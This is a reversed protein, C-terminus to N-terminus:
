HGERESRAVHGGRRAERALVYFTAVTWGTWSVARSLRAARRIDRTDPVRGEAGIIPREVWRGGYSSGGGLAVGLAGAFTAEGHASNPSPHLLRDRLGVRLASRWDEETLFSALAILLVSFRAVLFVMVDDLRAGAWGLRRYPPHRYGWMSDLTSVAKHALMWPLGGIAYYFLPAIVGDVVNEAVSEVAARCAGAHDLGATDRGVLCRLEMRAGEQDGSDLLEAVRIARRELERSALCSYALYVICARAAPLRRSLVELTRGIAMTLSLLGAAAAMGAVGEGAPGANRARLADELRSILWGLARVPHPWGEPDGLIRDLLFALALEGARGPVTVRTDKVMRMGARCRQRMSVERRAM